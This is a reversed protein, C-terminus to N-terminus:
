RLLLKRLRRSTVAVGLMGLVVLYVVDILVTPGVDGTTFSRLMHVGRYLPTLEVVIRLWEPYVSIPFFTGSFLFLPTSVVTVLDFDQWKRMFTTAAMGVAAAAFGILLAGPVALIAWPSLVLGLVFMVVLFASAYVLGRILAWSVEGIAIDPPGLPTSLM